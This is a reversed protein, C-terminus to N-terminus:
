ASESRPRETAAEILRWGVWGAAVDAVRNSPSEYAGWALDPRVARTAMEVIENAIGLLVIEGETVNMRQAAVGVAVHAVTYPDLWTGKDWHRWPGDVVNAFIATAAYLSLFPLLRELM